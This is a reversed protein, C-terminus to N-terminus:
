ELRGATSCDSLGVGSPDARQVHVLTNLTLVKIQKNFQHELVLKEQPCRWRASAYKQGNADPVSM